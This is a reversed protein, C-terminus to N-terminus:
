AGDWPTANGDGIVAAGNIAQTNAHAPLIEYTSTGDCTVVLAPAVTCDKTAQAYAIILASEGAGTGGTIVIEDGKYIDETASEGSALRINTSTQGTGQCTGDSVVFGAANNLSKGSTGGTTHGSLPEDWINDVATATLGVDNTVTTVTSVAGGSTTIAGSSVIDTAAVDNLGDLTTISGSISYGTKDSVTSATYGTKDNNTGVTVEGTTVTIALDSFNTPFTQTLSYGTKGVNWNGKNDLASANISAATIVNAGLSSVAIGSASTINTPTALGSQIETVADAALAAANVADTAISTVAAGAVSTIDTSTLTGSTNDLDIGAEGTANVDLTNAPTTSRVLQANGFTGSNVIAYSDGTQAVSATDLDFAHEASANGYTTIIIAQDEFAKTADDVITVVIRAASMETATLALSYIGRGEHVFDNTCTTTAGEDKIIECDTGSDTVPTIEFDTTGADILPFLITTAQNYKRLIEV